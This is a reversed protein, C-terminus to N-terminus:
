LVASSKARDPIGGIGAGTASLASYSGRVELRIPSALPARYRFRAARSRGGLCAVEAWHRVFSPAGISDAGATTVDDGAGLAHTLGAWASEALRGLEM